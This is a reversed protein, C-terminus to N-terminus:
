KWWLKKVLIVINVIMVTFLFLFMIVAFTM